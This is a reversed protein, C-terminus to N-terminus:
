KTFLNQLYQHFDKHIKTRKCCRCRSSRRCWCCKTIKSNGIVDIKM